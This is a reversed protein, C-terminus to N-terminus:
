APGNTGPRHAQPNPDLRTKELCEIQTIRHDHVIIQVVGYRLREVKERVLALWDPGGSTEFAETATSM